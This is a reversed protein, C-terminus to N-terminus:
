MRDCCTYGNESSHNIQLPKKDDSMVKIYTRYVLRANSAESVQFDYAYIGSDPASKQLNYNNVIQDKGWGVHFLSGKIAEAARGNETSTDVDVTM